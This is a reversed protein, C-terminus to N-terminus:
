RVAPDSSITDRAGVGALSATADARALYADLLAAAEAENGPMLHGYRDFTITVSAHGMYSSLAKANVGAGIMLSAFTHRCEHLGIPQLGAAKWARQARAAVGSPEFPKTATRGFVLGEPDCDMRHEILHDRLAAPIPVTRYGAKSKPEILGAVRDWSREVRILGSALDVNSWDLAMLEGRRLGAYFATAWLAREGTPLAALLAAAEPPSAIRDRKGQATPLRLGTTPNVAVEGRETARAYIARLPMIANRITSGDLGHALMRDRFRALDVGQLETLKVSGFEPLVRGKLDREYSRLTGPKYRSGSRTRISGARAGELWETAAQRVTIKSPARMKGLRLQSYADARWAKAESLSDFHKRIRRRERASYVAAQYTPKCNCRSDPAAHAPCSSQHRVEIGTLHSSRKAHM